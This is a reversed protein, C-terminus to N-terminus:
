DGFADPIRGVTLLTGTTSTASDDALYLIAEALEDPGGHTGPPAPSLGTDDADGFRAGACVANVRVFPALEASLARTMNWLAANAAGLSTNATNVAFGSGGLVNVISGGRGARMRASLLRTLRYPALVNVAFSRLLVSDAISLPDTDEGVEHLGNVLIDVQGSDSGLFSELSAAGAATTIDAVFHHAVLMGSAQPLGESSQRTADVAPSVTVVRAGALTFRRATAVGFESDAGTVVVTKKKLAMWDDHM